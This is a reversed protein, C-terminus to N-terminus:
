AGCKQSLRMRYSFQNLKQQDCFPDCETGRDFIAEGIMGDQRLIVIM